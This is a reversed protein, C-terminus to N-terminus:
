AHGIQSKTKAITNITRYVLVRANLRSVGCPDKTDKRPQSAAIKGSVSKETKRSRPVRARARACALVRSNRPFPLFVREHAFRDDSFYIRTRVRVSSFICRLQRSVVDIRSLRARARIHTIYLANGWRSIYDRGREYVAPAFHSLRRCFAPWRSPNKNRKMAACRHLNDARTVDFCRGDSAAPRQYMRPIM